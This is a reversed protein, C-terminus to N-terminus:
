AFAAALNNKINLQSLPSKFGWGKRSQIRLGARRGIGGSESEKVEETDVLQMEEFVSNKSTVSKHGFAGILTGIAKRKHDPSLHSYRLTMDISQHGLLEKVTLLDVGSMVLHSAFTHRLDHFTFDFIGAKKVAKKFAGRFDHIQKGEDNTFIYASCSPMAEITNYVIDSMPIERNKGSKTNRVFIIREKLDVENWKLKLIEGRRMGTYLATIIIPKIYDVAHELLSNIEEVSLYRLRENNEKLMRIMKVPNTLAMEWQIAKTFMHKFCSLERNVTAPAAKERRHNKYEELMLPSVESLKINGFFAKLHKISCRDRDWSLKNTKAYSMYKDVLQDLKFDPKRKVDLFKDEAIQVQRKALVKEAMKRNSGIAERMRYGDFYYDIYWTGSRKYIGM